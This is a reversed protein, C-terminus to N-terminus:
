INWSDGKVNQNEMLYNYLCIPCSLSISSKRFEEELLQLTIPLPTPLLLVKERFKTLCESFKKSSFKHGCTFALDKQLTTQKGGDEVRLDYTPITISEKQLLNKLIIEKIMTWLRENSQKKDFQETRNNFDNDLNDIYAKTISLYINTELPICLPHLSDSHSIINGLIPALEELKFLIYSAVPKIPLQRDNWFEFFEYLIEEKNNIDKEVFLVEVIYRLLSTISKIENEISGNFNTYQIQILRAHISSSWQRNLEFTTAVAEWNEWQRCIELVVFTRYNGFQKTITSIIMDQNYINYDVKNDSISSRYNIVYKISTILTPSQKNQTDGHGLQGYEGSGWTQIRGEETLIVTFDDGCEHQKINKGPLSPIVSPLTGSSPSSHYPSDTPHFQNCISL